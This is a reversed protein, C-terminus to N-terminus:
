IVGMSASSRKIAVIPKTDQPIFYGGSVGLKQINEPLEATSSIREILEGEQTLLVM